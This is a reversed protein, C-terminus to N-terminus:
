DGNDRESSGVAAILHHAEDRGAPIGIRYAEGAVPGPYVGYIAFRRRPRIRAEAVTASRGSKVTTKQRTFVIELQDLGAELTEGDGARGLQGREGRLDGYVVVKQGGLGGAVRGGHGGHASAHLVHDENDFLIAILSFRM